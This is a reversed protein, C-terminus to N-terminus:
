CIEGASNDSLILKHSRPRRQSHVIRVNCGLISNDIRQQINRIECDQMIVSYEVESNIMETRNGISSFSGVFSDRIACNEGIIVPGRITSAEIKTGKGIIINGRVDSKEDITGEIQPESLGQLVLRNAEIMDDPNGADIWWGALIHHDVRGGADLLGQIADTIEYEGRASPKMTSIVDHIMSDFVYIGICALNSPPDKPKEVLHVIRDNELVAIGYLQPKETQRLFLVANSHNAQFRNIAPELGDQLLNDGLYMVFPSDGLFDRSVMITHAIGLPNDQQIYTIDVGLNKGNNLVDVMDRTNE